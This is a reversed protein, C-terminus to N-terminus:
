TEKTGISTRLASLAQERTMIRGELQEDRVHELIQRVRPGPQINASLVDDGSILHAIYEYAGISWREEIQEKRQHALQAIDAKGTHKLLNFLFAGSENMFLKEFRHARMGQIWTESTAEQVRQIAIVVADTDIRLSSGKPLTCLGTELLINKVQESPLDLLLLTIALQPHGSKVEKLREIASQQVGPFLVPLAGCLDLWVGAGAPHKAFAKALELGLTERSVLYDGQQQTHIHAIRQQIAELTTQEITFSLETAFRIGRLMRTLDEKFRDDPNGVARLIEDQLDAQGGFPDILKGTKVHIAMANITFDRRSLDDEIPLQPDSHIYFERYGGASKEHSQETRPLAIDIFKTKHPDFGNPMFKFIGFHAGTFDMTGKEDFWAQIEEQTLGRIVFDFDVDHVVRKLLLDRVAGGVLYLEANPHDQLFPQIFSVSPSRAFVTKLEELVFM